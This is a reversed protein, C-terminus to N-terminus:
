EKEYSTFTCIRKEIGKQSVSCLYKLSSDITPSSKREASAFTEKERKDRKDPFSQDSLMKGMQGASVNGALRAGGRTIIVFYKRGFVLQKTERTDKGNRFPNEDPSTKM